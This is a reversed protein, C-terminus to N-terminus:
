VGNHEHERCQGPMNRLAFACADASGAERIEDESRPSRTGRMLLILPPEARIPPLTVKMALTLQVLLAPLTRMTPSRWTWPWAHWAILM